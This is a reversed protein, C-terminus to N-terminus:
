PQQWKKNWYLDAETQIISSDAHHDLCINYLDAYIEKWRDKIKEEKTLLNGDKDKISKMRLNQKGILTKITQNVQRTKSAQHCEDVEKCLHKLWLDKCEKSKTKIERNM